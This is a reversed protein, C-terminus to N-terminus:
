SRDPPPATQGPEHGSEEEAGAHEGRQPQGPAPSSPATTPRDGAIPPAAPLTPVNGAPAAPTMTSTPQPPTPTPAASAPADANAVLGSLADADSNEDSADDSGDDSDDDGGEVAEIKQVSAGGAGSINAHMGANLFAAVVQNGTESFDHAPEDEGTVFFTIRVQNTNPIPEIKKVTVTYPSTFTQKGAQVLSTVVQAGTRGTQTPPQTGPEPAAHAPESEGVQAKPVSVIASMMVGKMM